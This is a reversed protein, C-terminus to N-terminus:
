VDTKLHAQFGPSFSSHLPNGPFDEKKLMEAGVQHDPDIFGQKWGSAM